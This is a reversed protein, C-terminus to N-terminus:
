AYELVTCYSYFQISVPVHPRIQERFDRGLFTLRKKLEWNNFIKAGKLSISKYEFSSENM